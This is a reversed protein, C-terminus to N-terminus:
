KEQGYVYLSDGYPPKEVTTLNNKGLEELVVEFLGAADADAADNKDKNSAKGNKRNRNSKAAVLLFYEYGYSKKSFASGTKEKIKKPVEKDFGPIRTYNLQTFILKFDKEQSLHKNIIDFAAKTKNIITESTITSSSSLHINALNIHVANYRKTLCKLANVYMDFQAVPSKMQKDTYADTIEELIEGAKSFKGHFEEFMFNFFLDAEESKIEAHSLLGRMEQRNEVGGTNIKEFHNGVKKAVNSFRKGHHSLLQRLRLGYLFLMEDIKYYDVFKDHQWGLRLSPYKSRASNKNNDIGNYNLRQDLEKTMNLWHTDSVSPNTDELILVISANNLSRITNNVQEMNLKFKAPSFVHRSIGEDLLYSENNGNNNNGDTTNTDKQLLQRQSRLNFFSITNLRDKLIKETRDISGFLSNIAKPIQPESYKERQPAQNAKSNDQHKQEQQLLMLEDIGKSEKDNNNSVGVGSLACNNILNNSSKDYMPVIITKELKSVPLAAVFERDMLLNVSDLYQDVFLKKAIQSNKLQDFQRLTRSITRDPVNTSTLINDNAEQGNGNANNPVELHGDLVQLANYLVKSLKDVQARKTAITRM